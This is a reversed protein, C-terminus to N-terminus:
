VAIDIGEIAIKRSNPNDEIRSFNIRITSDDFIEEIIDAWEILTIGKTPKLYEEGGINLFDNVGELRYADIHYLFYDKGEYESVLKFTPSGVREKIGIAMALGQVFTTKGTGLNGILM